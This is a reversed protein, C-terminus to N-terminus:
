GPIGEVPDIDGLDHHEAHPILLITPHDVAFRNWSTPLEVTTRPTKAHTRGTNACNKPAIARMAGYAPM